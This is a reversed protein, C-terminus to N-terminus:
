REDRADNRGGPPLSLAIPAIGDPHARYVVGRLPALAVRRPQRHRTGPAFSLQGMSHRPIILGGDSRARTVRATSKMAPSMAADNQTRRGNRGATTQAVVITTALQGSMRWIWRRSQFRRESATAAMVMARSSTRMTGRAMAMLVMTSWASRMLPQTSASAVIFIGGGGAATRASGRIPSLM